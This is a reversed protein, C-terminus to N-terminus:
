ESEVVILKSGDLVIIENGLIVYVDRPRVILSIIAAVIKTHKRMPNTATSQMPFKKLALLAISRCLCFLSARNDLPPFPITPTSRYEEDDGLLWTEVEVLLLPSSIWKSDPAALSGSNGLLLGISSAAVGSRICNSALSVGFDLM